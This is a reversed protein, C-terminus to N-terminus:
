EHNGLIKLYSTTILSTIYFEYYEKKSCHKHNNKELKKKLQMYKLKRFFCKLNGFKQEQLFELRGQVLGYILKEIYEIKLRSKPIIHYLKMKYNSIYQYGQCLIARCLEGDEGSSLNEGNRGILKLWGNKYVGQLAKTLVCMGAGMPISNKKDTELPERLHTCALDRYIIDLLIKEDDNLPEEPVAIVAGNVVGAKKNKEIVKKLEILWKSDLINDDDVYIVWDSLANIAHKRAYSLGQKGEFQYEIIKSTNSYDLIIKKTKDSSNNDVVIVKQVLDNLSELNLIANLCKEIRKESNYTCVVITFMKTM